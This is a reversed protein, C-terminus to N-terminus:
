LTFQNTNYFSSHRTCKSVKNRAILNLDMPDLNKLKIAANMRRFIEDMM